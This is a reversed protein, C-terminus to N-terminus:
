GQLRGLIKTWVVPVFEQKAALLPLVAIGCENLCEAIMQSSVRQQAMLPTLFTMLEAFTNPQGAPGPM